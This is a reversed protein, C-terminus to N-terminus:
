QVALVRFVPIAAAIREFESLPADKEVAVHPREGPARQLYTKLVPARQGAPIEELRVEERRGHQLVAQGNAARINRVWAANEGLMSVLYRQGDVIVMVLPLSIRRGSRRGAVELTVLYDRAIGRAFVLASARNLIRALRNPRGGRYMWRHLDGAIVSIEQRCYGVRQQAVWDGAGRAAARSGRAAVNNSCRWARSEGDSASQWTVRGHPDHLPPSSIV